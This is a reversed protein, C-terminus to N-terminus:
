SNKLTRVRVEHLYEVAREKMDVTRAPFVDPHKSAASQVQPFNHTKKRLDKYFKVPAVKRVLSPGIVLATPEHNSSSIIAKVSDYYNLQSVCDGHVKWRTYEINPSAAVNHISISPMDEVNPM